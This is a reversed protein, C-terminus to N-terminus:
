FRDLIQQEQVIALKLIKTEGLDSLEIYAIYLGSAVPLGDQNALDWRLFQTVDDKDITKVLVGALNFIRVKAKEPLHNFTVFRQYKNIEESNIGYYPNPFVNIEDLQSIALDDSFSAGTTTFAYTDTGPVINNAYFVQIVDDSEWLCGWWVTNWTAGAPLVPDTLSIATEAYDSLVFATYMRGMTNWARFPPPDTPNGVRDYIMYNIQKDQDISWVEFPIRFAFPDSSGPNPNLPHTAIDYGRAGYITAMQGGSVTVEVDVGNINQIETVGNFRMEYDQVLLTPDTTGIGLSSNAAIAPIVGFATYDDYAIRGRNRRLSEGNLTLLPDAFTVPAAFGIIQNIQFGDATPAADVGVNTNFFDTPPYLVTGNVVSRRDLVIQNTSKNTVTWLDASRTANGITTVTTTGDLPPGGGAYGDDFATWDVTVPLIGSIDGVEVVWDEGGDHFIGNGTESEDTVGYFIQQGVIMPDVTGGGAEFSPSAIITVNDPFTLIVGDVWGYYHHVVNLHFGMTTTGAIPGFVATATITTGTLTDPGAITSTGAPVWFGEENRVQPETVYTVEYIAGTIATPDVITVVPGGDAIGNTHVVEIGDGSGDGLTVGPNTSHPIVTIIGIPNELNNPVAELSPNFNYATVAFYYKIGNIMPRENIEDISTAFYRKIGTDNGFQVPVIIVSGTVPDFILDNIKGVGDIVDYTAVRVGEAVQSAATPLQYVNYGQFTYGKSDASETAIVNATNKSWDLLIEGDLEAVTVSPAPPPTPLDFFNDYAVQAVQDYFKNLGIASIRDVAPTAGALIEAIVVEQTDGDAMTFPGSSLGQRRDGPGQLIGDIWGERTPVDGTLVFVTNEGTIPNVFFEGTIGVKGQMFNYFENSGEIVALTPDSVDAAGRTFYFAATMPLNIRGPGVVVGGFIGFDVADDVGNKNRDEGAVGDVIPGQFFDFGVVPPPLPNYTPDNANANYCMSLSLTTDVAVFDDTSNGLDVDSWFCMYMNEFDAGSRNILRYKRFFMNGLAGTQAYAWFTAQMEVGLPDAGYLNRTLGPELDNAVFWITQDAGPVGPIDGSSPSPDYIGDKVGNEDEADFFPAGYIAPWETWDLEYQARIDEESKGEDTAESSVNVSPGGPFVTPRVRYIRVHDLDGDEALGNPLIRGAQLGTAYTTGGVRVQPDGPAFAGWVLGSTFVAQKGSGKPYVLGSNSEAVDIDSVGDNKIVTSINNINMFARIPAGNIKTLRSNRDKGDGEAFASGIILVGGFLFILLINFIKLNM